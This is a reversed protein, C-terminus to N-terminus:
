QSHSSSEAALGECSCCRFIMLMQDDVLLLHLEAISSLASIFLMAHLKNFLGYESPSQIMDRALIIGSRVCKSTHAKFFCVQRDQGSPDLGKLDPLLM